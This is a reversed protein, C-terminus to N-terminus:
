MAPMKPSSGAPEIPSNTPLYARRSKSPFDSSHRLCVHGGFRYSVVAAWGCCATSALWGNVDVPILAEKAAPECRQDQGNAMVFLSAMAPAAIDRQMAATPTAMKTPPGGRRSEFARFSHFSLAMTSIALCVLSV